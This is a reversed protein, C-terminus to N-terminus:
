RSSICVINGCLVGLCFAGWAEADVYISRLLVYMSLTTGLHGGGEPGLLFLFVNEKDRKIGNGQGSAAAGKGSRTSVVVM